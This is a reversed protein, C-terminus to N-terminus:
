PIGRFARVSLCPSPFYRANRPLTEGSFPKSSAMSIARREPSRNFTAAFTIGCVQFIKLVADLRQQIVIVDFEYALDSVALLIIEQSICRSEQEWGIARAKQFQSSRPKAQPVGTM